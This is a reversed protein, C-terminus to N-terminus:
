LLSLFNACLIHVYIYAPTKKPFHLHFLLITSLQSWIQSFYHHKFFYQGTKLTKQGTEQCYISQASHVNILFNSRNHLYETSFAWGVDTEQSLLCTCYTKAERSTKLALSILIIGQLEPCAHKNKHSLGQYWQYRSHNLQISINKVEGQIEKCKKHTRVGLFHNSYTKNTKPHSWLASPCWFPHEWLTGQFPTWSLGWSQCPEWHNQEPPYIHVGARLIQRLQTLALNSFWGKSLLSPLSLIEGRFYFCISVSLFKNWNMSGQSLTCIFFLSVSQNPSISLNRPIYLLVGKRQMVQYFPFGHSMGNNQSSNEKGKIWKSVCPYPAWESQRPSKLHAGEVRQKRRRRPVSKLM